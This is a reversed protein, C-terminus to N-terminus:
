PKFRQDEVFAEDGLALLFAILDNKEQEPLKLPRIYSSKSPHSKGGSNYHDIVQRLSNMSGDHMYPATYALNRLSPVKFRALDTSDHTFRMRGIDTYEEYLGNNEFAYETFNFGGHCRFCDTKESFFLEMGRIQAANMAERCGCNTYQDYPSNGSILSREFTSIARTIVFPDPVRGYAERSMRVYESDAQLQYSIDVINHAFENTEQIPVLIQMELTPVSGERLYYPQYAVNALSPANRKGPRDFVGPSTPLSDAMAHTTKHCSACSLTGDISLVPDYFLRKGLRWRAETFANDAPFPVDPFGPPVQMLADSTPPGCPQELPRCASLLLVLLLLIVGARGSPRKSKLAGAVSHCARIM